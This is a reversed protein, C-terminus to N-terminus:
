AFRDDSTMRAGNAFERATLKKRGEIQVSEVRLRTAEGCV